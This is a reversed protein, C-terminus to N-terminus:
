LVGESFHLGTALIDLTDAVLSCCTCDGHTLDAKVQFTRVRPRVSPM